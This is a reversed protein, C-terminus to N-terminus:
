VLIFLLNFHLLVSCGLFTWFAWYFLPNVGFFTWFDFLNFHANISSKVLKIHAQLLATSENLSM